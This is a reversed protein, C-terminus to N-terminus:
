FIIRNANKSWLENYKEYDQNNKEYFYKIEVIM